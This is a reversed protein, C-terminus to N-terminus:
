RAAALDVPKGQVTLSKLAKEVQAVVPAPLPAYDLPAAAKQGDHVAWWLFRVLAEGKRTDAQNRRVLLYTFSAIPYADRGDANTVAFEYGETVGGGYGATGSLADVGLTGASLPIAISLCLPIVLSITKM